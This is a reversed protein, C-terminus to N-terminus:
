RNLIRFFMYERKLLFFLFIFAGILSIQFYYQTAFSFVYLVSPKQTKNTEPMRSLSDRNSYAIRAVTHRRTRPGAKVNGFHYDFWERVAHPNTRIIIIELGRHWLIRLEIAPRAPIKWQIGLARMGHKQGPMTKKERANVNERGPSSSSKNVERRTPCLALGTSRLAFFPVYELVTHLSCQVM